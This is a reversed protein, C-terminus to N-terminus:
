AAPKRVLVVLQMAVGPFRDIAREILSLAGRWHFAAGRVQVPEFEHAELFEILARRTYLRLHGVPRGRQGLVSLWRGLVVEESVESYIPQVGLLLLLRNPLCALNPTTLILHGGPQLVRKIEAIARDPRVLHEIVEAMYVLDFTGDAFPLEQRDIDLRYAELGRQRTAQVAVEAIDIGVVRGNQLQAIASAVGGDGCGVDLVRRSPVTAALKLAVRTRPQEGSAWSEFNEYFAQSM